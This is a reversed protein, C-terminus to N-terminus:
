IALYGGPILATALMVTNIDRHMEWTEASRNSPERWFGEIAGGVSAYRKLGALVSELAVSNPFRDASEAIFVALKEFAKFGIALGLERFPLRYIAPYDLSNKGIYADMGKLCAALLDEVMASDDYTKRSRDRAVLLALKFADTLLGGLGLPDDTAWERNRCIRAMEAIETELTPNDDNGGNDLSAQLQRYTILGDLPDHHGMSPVLPYTLDISMKWYIRKGGNDPPHWTFREHATKALEVAWRNYAAEGTTRGVQTLAHMWKTLYHFYQGDRDWESTADFPEEPRREIMPKGIRLGGVTPHERGENEILGSIWGTRYDDERHRGLIEHVQAVLRLALDRYELAETLRHLELFNCVAFADTWLYRVPAQDSEPSLGTREAFDAMLAKSM